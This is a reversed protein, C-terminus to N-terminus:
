LPFTITVSTGNGEESDIQIQGHHMEMFEKCLILGLGTGTEGNTGPTTYHQNVDFLLKHVQQPIGVGNDKILMEIHSDKQNYQIHVEGQENNYKIANGVLNRIITKLMDKDATLELPKNEAYIQIGKAKAYPKMYQIIEHTIENVDLLEKEFKIENTNAESWHLLNDLLENANQSAGKILELTEDKKADDMDKFESRLTDTLMTIANFPNKLDHGIISFLKDKSANLQRLEEKQIHLELTRAKVQENLKNNLLKVSRVKNIYFALALLIIGLIVILQFWLTAYFPPLITIRLYSIENNWVGDNNSGRVMLTYEGPSLNTYSVSNNYTTTWEKEFGDLKYMYQNKEPAVFDLASFEVSFIYDKHTLILESIENLPRPLIVRGDYKKNVAIAQNFLFFNSFVVSPTHNNYNISDPHFSIFGNRTAFLLQNDTSKLSRNSIFSYDIIGDVYDFTKIQETLPNFSCLGYDTGLWLMGNQDIEISKINNNSLGDQETYSNVVQNHTPDYQLLGSTTGIWVTRKKDERMVNGTYNLFHVNLSNIDVRAIQGHQIFAWIHNYSDTYLDLIPSQPSSIVQRIQQDQKDYVFLGRYEEAIWINGLADEEITEIFVLRNNDTNIRTIKQDKERKYLGNAKTAIWSNGDQDQLVDNCWKTGEESPTIQQFSGEPHEELYVGANRTCIMMNGQKDHKIKSIFHAPPKKLASFAHKVPDFQLIGGGWTGILINNKGQYAFSTVDTNTLGKAQKTFYHFKVREPYYKNLGNATAFWLVGTQDQFIDNIQNNSLTQVNTLDAYMQNFQLNSVPRKEAVLNLGNRTGIWIDGQKDQFIKTITNNSINHDATGAAYHYTKNDTTIIYLGKSWTGIWVNGDIVAVQNIANDSLFFPAPNEPNFTRVIAEKEQDILVLGKNWTGLILHNEHFALVKPGADHTKFYRHISDMYEYPYVQLNNTNIKTIHANSTVWLSENEDETIDWIRNDGIQRTAQEHNRTYQIFHDNEYSYLSLGGGHTGIWLQNKSDVFLTNIHNGSLSNSDSMEHRYVKFSYGDYRNLGNTTGIWLYGKQDQQVSTINDTSIGKEAKIREFDIATSTQSYLLILGIVCIIIKKGTNM